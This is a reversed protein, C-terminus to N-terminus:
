EARLTEAPTVTTARFSPGLSALLVILVIAMVVGTFTVPDWFSVGYLQDRIVWSLSFSAILGLSIGITALKGGRGLVLSFISETNAGLALRIGFEQRRQAVTYATVGYIGIAALLAAAGAFLGLISTTLRRLFSQRDRIAQLTRIDSPALNPDIESAIRRIPDVLALPDSESRVVLTFHNFGAQYAPMYLSERSDRDIGYHKVHSVVGVVEHWEGRKVRKGLIDGDPWWREAFREDVLIVRPANEDDRSTFARGAILRMGMAKLYDPSVRCCEAHPKKGPEAPPEGEVEYTSQWNGLLNSCIAAHKVTPLPKVRELLDRYFARKKDDNDYTKGPLSLRLTLTNDPSYGPDAELYRQFSRALLGAGTLLILALAIETVVMADRLRHRSRSATATRASSSTAAASNALSSQLASFLGFLLGAGFTIGLFFLIMNRDLMAPQVQALGFRDGIAALLSHICLYAILIGGSGGLIALILNESLLQRIMRIRGAGLASRVSIEQSRKSARVLLLGAINVCVILLVFGVASMLVLIGPRIFSVMSAHYDQATVTNGSNTKPYEQQLHLAVRELDANAQVLSVNPKLKAIGQIGPHNGRNMFWGHKELLGIPMWIAANNNRLPPFSVGAPLIGIIMYPEGDLSLSQGVVNPDGGYREQWLAHGLIISPVANLRDDEEQFLRGLLPQAGLLPLLNSSCQLISLREPQGVGTLNYESFRYCAMTEFTENMKQWDKFNSYSISMPGFTQNAPRIRAFREAEPYPLPSLLFGNLFWFIAVNAGIGLALTLIAVFTFGKEKRFQRLAFRADRWFDFILRNAWGKQGSDIPARTSDM